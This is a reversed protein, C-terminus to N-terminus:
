STLKYLDHFGMGIHHNWILVKYLSTKGVKWLISGVYFEAQTVRQTM